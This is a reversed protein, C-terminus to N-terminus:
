PQPVIDVIFARVKRTSKNEWWHTIGTKEFALAGTKRTVPNSTDSRHEMIEGELIYAVGPRADHEHVAVVGGPQITIERARLVKNKDDKIEGDLSISGLDKISEVGANAKPGDAHLAQAREMEAAPVVDMSHDHAHSFGAVLFLVPWYKTVSRM